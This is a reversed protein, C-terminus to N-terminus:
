DDRERDGGDMAEAAAMGIAWLLVDAPAHRGDADRHSWMETGDALIHYRTPGCPCDPASRHSGPRPRDAM